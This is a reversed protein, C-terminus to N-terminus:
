ESIKRTATIAIDRIKARHKKAAKLKAKQFADELNEAWIDIDERFAPEYCNCTLVYHNM